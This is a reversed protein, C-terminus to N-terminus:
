RSGDIVFDFYEFHLFEEESNDHLISLKSDVTNITALVWLMTFHSNILQSIEYCETNTIDIYKSSSLIVM